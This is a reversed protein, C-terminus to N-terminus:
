PCTATASNGNAEDPIYFEQVKEMDGCRWQLSFDKRCGPAPDGLRNIDVLFSCSETKTGCVELAIKTANGAAVRNVQGAPVKFDRCNLGYTAETIRIEAANPPLTWSDIIQLSLWFSAVLVALGLVIVVIRGIPRGNM